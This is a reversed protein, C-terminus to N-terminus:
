LQHLDIFMNIKDMLRQDINSNNKGDAFRILNFDGGLLVPLTSRMCKRSLETIFDESLSHQTPGYVTVLEWRSNSLRNRLVMSIYYEGTETEEIEYSEENVRM